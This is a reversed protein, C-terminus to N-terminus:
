PKKLRFIGSGTGPLAVENHLNTFNLAPNNTVDFWGTPTLANRQLVFSASPVTWSVLFDSSSPQISLMPAPTTKSIYIGGNGAFSNGAVAVVQNGDASSTLSSWELYPADAFVM